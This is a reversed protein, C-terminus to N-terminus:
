QSIYKKLSLFHERVMSAEKDFRRLQIKMEDIENIYAVKERSLKDVQASTAAYQDTMEKLQQFYIKSYIQDIYRKPKKTM